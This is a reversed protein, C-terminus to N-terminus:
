ALPSNPQFVAAAPVRLRFGVSGQCGGSLQEGLGLM